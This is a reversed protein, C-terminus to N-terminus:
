CRMAPPDWLLHKRSLGRALLHRNPYPNQLKLPLEVWSPIRSANKKADNETDNNASVNTELHQGLHGDYVHLEDFGLLLCDFSNVIARAVHVGIAVTSSLFRRVDHAEIQLHSNTGRQKYYARTRQSTHEDTRFTQIQIRASVRLQV